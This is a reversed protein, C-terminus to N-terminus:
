LAKRISFILYDDYDMETFDNEKKMLVTINHGCERCMFYKRGEEQHRKLMKNLIDKEKVFWARRCHKCFAINGPEELM